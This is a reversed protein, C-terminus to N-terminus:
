NLVRVQKAATSLLLRPQLTIAREPCTEACLGCQVCNREVFRLQPTDANDMLASAPCAGVCSMCLTCADENVAVSGFLAGAPLAIEEVPAPANKLLHDLVYDLSVRKDQALHFTAVDRPTQAPQLGYLLASLEDASETQLLHVHQGRYGLGQLIANALAIQRALAARYEPAEEDTMLIAVTSAGYCIAALWLEIGTSATHHLGMPIFRAPLGRGGTRATQGSELVIREGRQQSHLLLGAAKGGAKGYAALMTKIHLGTDPARMYAYGM